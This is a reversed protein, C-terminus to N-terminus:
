GYAYCRERLKQVMSRREMQLQSLLLLIRVHSLNGVADAIVIQLVDCNHYKHSMDVLEELFMPWAALAHYPLMLYNYCQSGLAFCVCLVSTQHEGWHANIVGLRALAQKTSSMDAITYSSSVLIVM